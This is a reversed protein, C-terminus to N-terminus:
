AKARRLRRVAVGSSFVVALAMGPEPVSTPPSPLQFSEVRDQDAFAIYLTRSESDITVGEPDDFGTLNELDIGSILTGDTAIEFLFSTGGSDDVVFLNGTLLDVTIGEPEDFGPFLATTDITSLLNGSLDFEVIAEDVDDAVFVTNTQPNFVVGDGDDSPPDTLFSIGGSIEGSGDPAIEQVASNEDDQEAILLNGNPLVSLGEVDPSDPLEFTDVLTGDTTVESIVQVDNADDDSVIFLNGSSADFAIGDPDAFDFGGLPTIPTLVPSGITRLNFTFTGTQSHAGTFNFDSFGSVAFNLNGSSPVTGGLASLVDVGGDDDDILTGVDDFLGLVTDFDGSTIEAFFLDGAALDSFSFFDVDGPTIAGEVTDVGAGFVERETFSNNPETETVAIAPLASLSLLVTVTGVASTLFNISPKMISSDNNVVFLIKTPLRLPWLKALVVRNHGTGGLAIMHRM